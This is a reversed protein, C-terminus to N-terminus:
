RVMLGKTSGEDRIAFIGTDLACKAIRTTKNILERACAPHVAYGEVERKERVRDKVRFQM